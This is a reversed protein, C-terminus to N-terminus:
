SVSKVSVRKSPVREFGVKFVYGFVEIPFLMDTEKTSSLIIDVGREYRLVRFISVKALLSGIIENELTERLEDMGIVIKGALSCFIDKGEVVTHAVCDKSRYYSGCIIDLTKKIDFRYFYRAGRKSAVRYLLVGNLMGSYELNPDLSSKYRDSPFNRYKCQSKLEGLRYMDPGYTKAYYDMTDMIVDTSFMGFIGKYSCKRFESKKTLFFKYDQIFMPFLYRRCKKVDKVQLMDETEIIINLPNVSIDEEASKKTMGDDLAIDHEIEHSYKNLMITGVVKTAYHMLDGGSEENYNALVHFFAQDLADEWLNKYISIAYGKLSWVARYIRMIRSIDLSEVYDFYNM